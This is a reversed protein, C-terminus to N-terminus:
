AFLDLKLIEVQEAAKRRKAGEVDDEAAIDQDIERQRGLTVDELAHASLHWRVASKEEAARLRNDADGLFKGRMRAVGANEHRCM